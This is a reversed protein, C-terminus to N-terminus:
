FMNTSKYIIWGKDWNEPHFLIHKLSGILKMGHLKSQQQGKGTRVPSGLKQEAAMPGTSLGGPVSIFCFITRLRQSIETWLGKFNCWLYLNTVKLWPGRGWLYLGPHHWIFWVEQPNCAMTTQLWIYIYWIYIYIMYIYVIREVPEPWYKPLGLVHMYWM